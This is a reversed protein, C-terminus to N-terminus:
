TIVGVVTLQPVPVDNIKVNVKFGVATIVGIVDILQSPTNNLTVGTFPALPITGLPVNYLQDTGPIDPPSVPPTDPVLAADIVPLKIM